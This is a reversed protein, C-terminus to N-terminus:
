TRIVGPPKWAGQGVPLLSPAETQPWYLRMAMYLPGAPAPLWNSEKDPGPSAHQIYLTLSGDPNRKLTDLMPSNVLYRNIPNEALLQTKGDYMTVSWFAKVPPLQGAPFTLTYNAKSGDLTAGSSDHRTLPYTAEVADNAYIGAKAVAARTLWNGNVGQPSNDIPTVRWGNMDVGSTAVAQEVAREGQFLGVDVELRDLLSTGGATMGPGAGVGIRALQGRITAENPQPAAFQLAFDLYQFFHRKALDADIRPWNVEPPAPPAPQGLFASLSQVRYGKQVAIVNPMDAPAFLQTRILVVAFQTTSRFVGKIGAPMAGQWGPGVLLWSGGESGTSRSGIYGINYTNWDILQVSFYRKPDVTPVTVVVPEARLDVCALSYPTDSNPTVVATDKPTFVRSENVLTNLSGKYNPSAKDIFFEYMAAYNMVIPLGFIFGAEAIDKAGIIGPRDAQAAALGPALASAGLTAVMSRRTFM